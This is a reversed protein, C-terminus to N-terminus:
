GGTVTGNLAAVTSQLSVTATEHSATCTVTLSITAATRSSSSAATLTFLGKAGPSVSCSSLGATSPTGAVVTATATSPSQGDVWTQSELLGNGGASPAEYWWQVWHSTGFATTLIELGDNTVPTTCASGLTAATPAGGSTDLLCVESASSLQAALDQLALQGAATAQEYAVTTQSARSVSAVFPVFLAMVIAGVVM